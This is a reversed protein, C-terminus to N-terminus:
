STRRILKTRNINEFNLTNYNQVVEDKMSYIKKKDKSFRIIQNCRNLLILDQGGIMVYENLRKILVMKADDISVYQEVKRGELHINNKTNNFLKAAARAGLIDKPKKPLSEAPLNEMVKRIEDVMLNGLEELVRSPYEKGVTENECNM